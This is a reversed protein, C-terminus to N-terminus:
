EPKVDKRAKVADVMDRWYGRLFPPNEMSDLVYARDARDLDLVATIM